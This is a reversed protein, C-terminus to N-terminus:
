LSLDQLVAGEQGRVAIKELRGERRLQDRRRALGALMRKQDKMLYGYTQFINSPHMGFLFSGPARLESLFVEEEDLYDRMSCEDFRGGKIDEYLPCGPEAHVTGTFILYPVAASLLEATAQANEELHSRGASGFIINAAYEMGAAKLRRLQTLAQAATYGKNMLELAPDYGSEIGVNLQDIGLRRLSKLERDTKAKINNISAYMAITRVTPFNKHIKGAIAELRSASLAFADGNELFVREFRDAAPAMQRIQEDLEEDSLVRFHQDRYMTCFTCKNHSCGETVELLLSGAEFPPRYLISM